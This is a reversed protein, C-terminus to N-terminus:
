THAAAGRKRPIQFTVPCTVNGHPEFGNSSNGPALSVCAWLLCCFSLKSRQTSGTTSSFGPLLSCWTCSQQPLLVSLNQNQHHLQLTPNYGHYLSGTSFPASDPHLAQYHLEMIALSLNSTFFSCYTHFSVITM